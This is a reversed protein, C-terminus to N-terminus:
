ELNVWEEPLTDYGISYSFRMQKALRNITRYPASKILFYILMDPNSAVIDEYKKIGDYPLYEKLELYVRYELGAIVKRGLFGDPYYDHKTVYLVPDPKMDLKPYKSMIDLEQKSQIRIGNVTRHKFKQAAM